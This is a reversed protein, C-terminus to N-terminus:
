PMHWSEFRYRVVGEGLWAFYSAKSWVAMAVVWFRNRLYGINLLGVRCWVSVLNIHYSCQSYARPSKKRGGCQVFLATTFNCNKLCIGPNSGTGYSAKAWGHLALVGWVMRGDCCGFFRNRLYGINLQGVRCVSVLNVSAPLSKVATVSCLFARSHFYLHLPM